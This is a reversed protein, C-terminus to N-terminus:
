NNAKLTNLVTRAVPGASTYGTGGGKIWVVFAYPHDPDDLFGVFWSNSKSTGVEATGSKACLNLGSFNGDGYTIRVDDRMMGKLKSATDKELYRGLSKGGTFQKLFNSSKILTPEVAEGGNAIAGVYVMMACPNVLDQYQGIGAWSLNVPENDPFTFTGPNTKIGDVNISSTLGAKDVYDQMVSSGVQRTLSGFAGNCSKALALEFDVEGHRSTCNIKEGNYRNVGDCNFDFNDIDDLTDYAAAATVLKFTSGPTLTGNLFTNFYIPSNSDAPEARAPDFAPTVVMCLIEGTEYNFVGVTGERGGLANYASKNADADITLSINKGESTTDYTGNLIDYGILQDKWMNIAGTAINGKPDGVAHVTSMRIARDDSYHVGDTSCNLLLKGNRDYITGRNIVGNTYIQTNGYFSAWEGGHTVFRWGFYVIGLFLVAAMALCILARRELKRM